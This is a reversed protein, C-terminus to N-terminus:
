KIQCRYQIMFEKKTTILHEKNKPNEISRMRTPSPPTTKPLIFYRYVAFVLECMKEDM